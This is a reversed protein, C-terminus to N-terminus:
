SKTRYFSPRQSLLKFLNIFPAEIRGKRLCASSPCQAEEAGDWRGRWGRGWRYLMKRILRQAVMQGVPLQEFLVQVLFSPNGLLVAIFNESVSKGEDTDKILYLAFKLFPVWGAKETHDQSLPPLCEHTTSHNRLSAQHPLCDPLSQTGTEPLSHPCLTRRM